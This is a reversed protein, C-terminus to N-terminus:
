GLRMVLFLYNNYLNNVKIEFQSQNKKFSFSKIEKITNRVSGNMKGLMYLPRDYSSFNVYESNQTQLWDNYGNKVFVCKAITFGGWKKQSSSDNKDLFSLYNQDPTELVATIKKNYCYGKELLEEIDKYKKCKSIYGSEDIRDDFSFDILCDAVSSTIAIEHFDNPMHQSHNKVRKDYEFDLGDNLEVAYNDNKYSTFFSIRRNSYPSYDDYFSTMIKGVYSFRAYGKGIM